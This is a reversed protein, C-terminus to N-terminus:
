NQFSSCGTCNSKEFYFLFLRGDRHFMMHNGASGNTKQCCSHRLAAFYVLFVKKTITFYKLLRTLGVRTLIESHIKKVTSLILPMQIPQSASQSVPFNWLLSMLSSDPMVTPSCSCCIRKPSRQPIPWTLYLRIQGSILNSLVPHQLQRPIICIKLLGLM